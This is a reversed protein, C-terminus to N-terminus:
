CCSLVDSFLICYHSVRFVSTEALKECIYTAEHETLNRAIIVGNTEVEDSSFAAEMEMEFHSQQGWGRDPWSLSHGEEDVALVKIVIPVVLM